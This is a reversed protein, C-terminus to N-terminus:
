KPIRGFIGSRRASTSSKTLKRMQRTLEEIGEEPQFQQVGCQGHEVHRYISSLDMYVKGCSENPCTFNEDKHASSHLHHYLYGATIFPKHYLFCEYRRIDPNWARKADIKFVSPEWLDYNITDSWSDRENPWDPSSNAHQTCQQYVFSRLRGATISSACKGSKLHHFFDSISNFKSDCGRASRICPIEVSKQVQPYLHVELDSPNQFYRKCLICFDHREAMHALKKTESDFM